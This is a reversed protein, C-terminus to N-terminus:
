WHWGTFPHTGPVPTEPRFTAEPTKAYGNRDSRLSEGCSHSPSATEVNNGRDDFRRIFRAYGEKSVAPKDDIGFYAAEVENGREDQLRTMSAYGDKGLIPKGDIGFYAIEVMYGREDFRLTVSAYGDKGLIPKGNIGFYSQGGFHGREIRVVGLVGLAEWVPRGM